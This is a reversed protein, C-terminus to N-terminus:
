LNICYRLIVRMVCGVLNLLYELLKHVLEPCDYLALFIDSGWILHAVDFPGQLDPHYIVIAKKLKPYNSLVEMYYEATEFCKKGLGNEFGPIGKELIRHIEDRSKVHFSWPMSNETLKFDTGFISPMIVTGYNCRINLPSYDKLQNRILPIRLQNLLMKAPDSFGDNYLFVPWDLEPVNAEEPFVFPLEAVEEFNLAKRCTSFAKEQHELDVTAEFKSLYKEVLNKM